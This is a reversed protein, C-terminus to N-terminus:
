SALWCPMVTLGVSVGVPVAMHVYRDPAELSSPAQRKHSLTQTDEDSHKAVFGNKDWILGMM